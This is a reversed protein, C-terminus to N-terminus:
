FGKEKWEEVTLAFGEKKLEERRRELIEIAEKVVDPPAPIVGHAIMMLSLEDIPM